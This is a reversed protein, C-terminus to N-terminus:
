FFGGGLISSAKFNPDLAPRFKKSSLTVLIIVVKETYLLGVVVVMNCGVVGIIKWFLCSARYCM